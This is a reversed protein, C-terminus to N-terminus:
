GWCGGPSRQGVDDALATGAAACGLRGPSVRCASSTPAPSSRDVGGRAGGGARGRMQLPRTPAHFGAGARRAEGGRRLPAAGRKGFGRECSVIASETSEEALRPM